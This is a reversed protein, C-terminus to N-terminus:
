LHHKIEQDIADIQAEIAAVTKLAEAYQKELESRKDRLSTLYEIKKQLQGITTPNPGRSGAEKDQSGIVPVEPPFADIPTPIHTSAMQNNNQRSRNYEARQKLWNDTKDVVNKINAYVIDTISNVTQKVNVNYRDENTTVSNYYEVNDERMPKGHVVSSNRELNRILDVIDDKLSSNSYTENTTIGFHLMIDDALTYADTRIWDTPEASVKLLDAVYASIKEKSARSSIESTTGIIKTQNAPMYITNPVMLEKDRTLYRLVASKMHSLNNQIAYNYQNFGPATDKRASLLMSKRNFFSNQRTEIFERLKQLTEEDFYFDSNRIEDNFRTVLEIPSTMLYNKNDKSPFIRDVLDVIEFYSAIKREDM